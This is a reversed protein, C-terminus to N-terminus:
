AIFVAAMVKKLLEFGDDSCQICSGQLTRRYAAERDANPTCWPCGAVDIEQYLRRIFLSDCSSKRGDSICMRFFRHQERIVHLHLSDALDSRGLHHSHVEYFTKLLYRGVDVMGRTVTRALLERIHEASNEVLENDATLASRPAASSEPHTAHNALNTQQPM